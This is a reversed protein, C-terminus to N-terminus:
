KVDYKAVQEAIVDELSREGPKATKKEVAGGVTSTAKPAKKQEEILEQRVKNRDTSRKDLEEKHKREMVLTYASMLDHKREKDENLVKLIEAGNEKFGPWNEEARKVYADVRQELQERVRMAERQERIPKLDSDVAALAEARAKAAAATAAYEMLKKVGEISYTKQGNGLDLDPEPMVLDTTTAAAPKTEATGGKKYEAYGPNLHVLMQMFRDPDGTMIQEVVGHEKLTEEHASIKTTLGTVHERVVEAATKGEPLTAGQGLVAEVVKKEANGVIAKVRPYPIRNDKGKQPQQLGHEKAFPDEEVVKADAAAGGETGEAAGEGAAAAAAGEDGAAADQAGEAGEAAVGGADAAESTGADGGDGEDATAKEVEGAIVAELDAM